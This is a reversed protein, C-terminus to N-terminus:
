RLILQFVTQVAQSTNGGAAVQTVGSLGTVTVPTLSELSTFGGGLEGDQNAGWAEVTGNSLLAVTHDTGAALQTIGSGPGIALVPRSEANTSNDGLDGFSGDGWGWVSGDTGLVMAHESGAAIGEVDGVNLGTVVQPITYGCLCATGNGITADTDQGWTLVQNLVTYLGRNQVAMGFFAGAAISTVRSLGPIQVPTAIATPGNGLQGWQNGGWGWVTGDSRLAMSWENGAAIATVGTLGPVQVPILSRATSGNGLEGATNNGWAWVTGDSSLALSHDWGAAVQTIGSLGAVLQPSPYNSRDGTGLEGNGNYGWAYVSGDTTVALSHSNGDSIQSINRPGSVTVYTSSSVGSGNGLHGNLNSGWAAGIHATPRQKVTVAARAAAPYAAVTAVMLGLTLALRTLRRTRLLHDMHKREGPLGM